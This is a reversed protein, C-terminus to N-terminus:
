ARYREDRRRASAAAVARRAGRRLGSFVAVGIQSATRRWRAVGAQNPVPVAPPRSTSATSSCPQCGVRRCRTRRRPARDDRPPGRWGEKVDNEVHWFRAGQEPAGLQAPPCGRRARVAACPQEHGLFSFAQPELARAALSLRSRAPQTPGAEGKQHPPACRVACTRLTSVAKGCRLSLAACTKECVNERVPLPALRACSTISGLCPRVHVVARRVCMVDWIVPSASACRWCGSWMVTQVECRVVVVVRGRRRELRAPRPRPAKKILEVRRPRGACGRGGRADADRGARPAVRRARPPRPRLRARAAHVRETEAREAARARAAAAVQRTELQGAACAQLLGLLRDPQGGRAARRAQRPPRHLARRPRRLLRPPIAHRRRIRPAGTRARASSRRQSSSAGAQCAYHLPTNGDANAATPSAGRELLWRATPDDGIACWLAAAARGPRRGRRRGRGSRAAVVGRRAQRRQVGRADRLASRDQTPLSASPACPRPRRWTGTQARWTCWRTAPPTSRCTRARPRRAGQGGGCNCRRWDLRRLRWRMPPAGISSTRPPRPTPRSISCGNWSRWAVMSVRMM